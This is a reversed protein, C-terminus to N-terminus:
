HCDNSKKLAPMAALFSNAGPTGTGADHLHGESIEPGDCEREWVIDETRLLQVILLKYYGWLGKDEFLGKSTWVKRCKITRFQVLWCASCGLSSVQFNTWLSLERTRLVDSFSRTLASIALHIGAAESVTRTAFTDVTRNALKAWPLTTSTLQRSNTVDASRLKRAQHRWSLDLDWSPTPEM